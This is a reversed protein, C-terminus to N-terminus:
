EAYVPHVVRSGGAAATPIQPLSGTVGALLTAMEAAPELSLVEGEAAGTPTAEVLAFTDGDLTARFGPAAYEIRGNAAGPHLATVRHTRGEFRAEIVGGGLLMFANSSQAEFDARDLYLRPKDRYPTGSTPCVTVCNGCENCLDTLVAIQLRQNAVFPTSGNAVVVGNTVALAPLDARVPAMAYTMLAMNPCVGVCLSCVQDCDLCRSAERTAEEASYGLVTEGFGDRGDLDSSRIPV